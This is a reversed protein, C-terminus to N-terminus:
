SQPELAARAAARDSLLANTRGAGAPSLSQGLKLESCVADVSALLLELADKIRKNEAVLSLVAAALADNVQEGCMSTRGHAIMAAKALAELSALETPTM